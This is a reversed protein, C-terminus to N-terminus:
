KSKGYSQETNIPTVQMKPDAYFENLFDIVTVARLTTSCLVVHRTTGALLTSYAGGEKQRSFLLFALQELQSLAYFTHSKHFSKTPIILNLYSDVYLYPAKSKVVVVLELVVVFNTELCKGSCGRNPVCM